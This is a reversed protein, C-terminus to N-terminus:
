IEKYDLEIYESAWEKTYEYLIDEKAVNSLSVWEEEDYGLDELTVEDERTSQYGISLQIRFTHM